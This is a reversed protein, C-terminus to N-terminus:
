EGLRTSIDARAHLVRMIEIGDDHPIYFVLHEGSILKRYGKRIASYDSGMEPFQLAMAMARDFAAIYQDAKEIGYEQGTYDWIASIDANAKRSIRVKRSM